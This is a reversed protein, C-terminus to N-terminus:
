DRAEELQFAHDLIQQVSMGQRTIENYSRLFEAMYSPESIVDSYKQDAIWLCVTDISATDNIDLGLLQTLHADLNSRLNSAEAATVKARAADVTARVDALAETSMNGDAHIEAAREMCSDLAAGTKAAKIASWIKPLLKNHEDQGAEVESVYSPDDWMGKFIEANFGLLSLAKSQAVTRIKKFTDNGKGTWPVDVSIPFSHGVWDNDANRDYYFECHLVLVAPSDANPLWEYSCNEIGWGAGYPGWEQTAREADYEPNITKYSRAGYAVDKVYKTHPKANRNWVAMREDGKKVM